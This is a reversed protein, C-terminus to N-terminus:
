DVQHAVVQGTRTADHVQQKGLQHQPTARLAVAPEIEAHRREGAQLAAGKRREPVLDSGRDEIQALFEVVEVTEILVLGLEIGIPPRAIERRRM